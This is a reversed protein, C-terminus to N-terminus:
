KVKILYGNIDKLVLLFATMREKQKKYNDSNDM